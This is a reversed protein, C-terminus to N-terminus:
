LETLDAAEPLSGFFGPDLVADLVRRRRSLIRALRPASGMIAAILELLNPNRRLLSFLQIGSPLQSLFRDFNVFALDPDASKGLAELLVPQVETLRERARASRVAPYRGHHWGRIMAIVETPRSFGFKILAAVTDPDDAEGAFVMNAGGRTLPPSDEFL